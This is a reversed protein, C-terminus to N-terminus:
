MIIFALKFDNSIGGIVIAIVKFTIDVFTIFMAERQKNMIIAICSVPNAIFNLFLWPMLIQAIEGSIKWEEGFVFAFVPRAFLFLLFFVPFGILFLNRYIRRVMPQIQQGNKLAETAKQYFVQYIANGILGVPAKLVRFAFSYSGLILKSFFFMILYIIGNNQLSDLFAHPTNIKLFNKYKKANEIIEKRTIEKRIEKLHILTQWGLVLAAVVQGLIYGLILGSSGAKAVGMGINTASMVTSQSVRGTANRKFTKHRTSWYNFAQYMGAFLVVIPLFYLWPEIGPEEFFIAVPKKFIVVLIFTFVSVIFTFLLSLALVNYADRKKKPLMIALEYRGTAIVSIVAAISMFLALVGFDEPTYLRSLIPSILVPIAQAIATGSMLTIVNKLFESQLLKKKM